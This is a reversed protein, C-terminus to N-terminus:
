DSLRLSEVKMPMTASCYDPIMEGKVTYRICEHDLFQRIYRAKTAFSVLLGARHGPAFLKVYASSGFLLGTLEGTQASFVGSGSGGPLIDAKLLMVDQFTRASTGDGISVNMGNAMLYGRGIVFTTQEMPYGPIVVANGDPLPDAAVTVIDPTALGTRLLVLDRAADEAVVDATGQVIVDGTSTYRTVKIKGSPHVVHHATLIYGDTTVAFGTGYNISKENTVTKGTTRDLRTEEKFVSVHYTAHVNSDIRALESTQDPFPTLRTSENDASPVCEKKISISAPACGILPVLLITTYLM